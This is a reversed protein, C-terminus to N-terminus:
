SGTGYGTPLIYHIQRGVEKFRCSPYLHAGVVNQELTEIRIHEMGEDKLYTIATEILERGIGGGQHAPLVGLNPIRGIKTESDVRTTIYGFVKGDEEAVFVGTPNTDLDDEIQRSKYWTWDKGAIPGVLKETNQDLSVGDFCIVAIKKVAERDINQYKRIM